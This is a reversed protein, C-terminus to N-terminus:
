STLILDRAEAMDLNHHIDLNLWGRHGIHQAIRYRADITRTFQEVPAAWVSLELRRRNPKPCRLWLAIRGDGHYFLTKLVDAM